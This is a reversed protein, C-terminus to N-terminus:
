VQLGIRVTVTMILLLSLHPSPSM